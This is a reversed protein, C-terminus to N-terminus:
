AIVAAESVKGRRMRRVAFGGAGVIGLLALSSPEPVATYALSFNDLGFSDRSGSGTSNTFASVRLWLNESSNDVASSLNFSSNTLGFSEPSITGLSNFSTPTAGQAWDFTWTTTRTQESLVGADISWVFDKFGSTSAIQFVFSAGPDGFTGSQRVGIARDTSANQQATTSTGVISSSSYNKFAGAGDGWTAKASNFTAVAGLSSANAGTRVTVWSPLGSEVNNFDEVLSTGSLVIAGRSEAAVLALCGVLLGCLVRKM